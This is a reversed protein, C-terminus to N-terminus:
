TMIIVSYTKTTIQEYIDAEGECGSTSLYPAPRPSTCACVMNGM